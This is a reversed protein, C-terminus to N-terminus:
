ALVPLVVWTQQWYGAKENFEPTGEELMELVPDYVPPDTDKVEVVGYADFIEQTPTHPLSVNNLSVRLDTYTYPYRDIKGDAVKAIRM